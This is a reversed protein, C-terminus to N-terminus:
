PYYEIVRTFYANLRELGYNTDYFQYIVINGQEDYKYVYFERFKMGNTTSEKELLFGIQILFIAPSCYIVKYM